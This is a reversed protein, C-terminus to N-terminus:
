SKFDLYAVPALGPGGKVIGSDIQGLIQQEQANRCEIIIEQHTILVAALSVNNSIFLFMLLMIVAVKLDKGFISLYMYNQVIGYVQMFQVKFDITSIYHPM